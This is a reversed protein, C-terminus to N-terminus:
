RYIFINTFCSRRVQRLAWREEISTVQVIVEQPKVERELSKHIAKGKRTIVDNQAGVISDIRIEKGFASTFSKPRERFPRGRKGRLGYEFQMECWCPSALDTVSLTGCRRFAELPSPRIRSKEGSCPQYSSSATEYAITVKALHEKKAIDADIRAFDEETFESFDYAAFEDDDAGSM